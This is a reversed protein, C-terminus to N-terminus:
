DRFNVGWGKLVRQKALNYDKAVDPDISTLRMYQGESLIWPDIGRFKPRVIIDASSPDVMLVHENPHLVRQMNQHILLDNSNMLQNWIADDVGFHIDNLSFIETKLGQLIADALWRSTIYNIPSGWCNQTMFLSFRVLKALLEKNTAVWVNDVFQLDELIELAEQKTIFGQFYAGQINYDIRDACLNPLPQELASNKKPDIQDVLFGHKELIITLGSQELYEAFILSQYDNSDYEKGFIWDGVHSFVTHSVDHLLGAIQEELSSGKVRLIAFVGLSHDYRTYEERHTTYYSVGYQHIFQLRQFAPSKILELLVPEEVELTGYFTEIKEAFCTTIWVLSLFSFFNITFRRAM